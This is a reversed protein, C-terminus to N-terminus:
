EINTVIIENKAYRWGSLGMEVIRFNNAHAWEILQVNTRGKHEKVNSM